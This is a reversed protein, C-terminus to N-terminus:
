KKVAGKKIVKIGRKKANNAKRTESGVQKRTKIPVKTTSMSKRKSDSMEAYGRSANKHAAAGTLSKGYRIPVRKGPVSNYIDEIMLLFQDISRWPQLFQRNQPLARLFREMEFGIRSNAIYLARIFHSERWGYPWIPKIQSFLISGMKRAGELDGIRFEGTIFSRRLAKPGRGALLLISAEHPLDYTKRFDMYTVYHQNGQEVYSRAYDDSVWHKATTNLKQVDSLDMGTGVIYPVPLELERRAEVRHQGDIIQMKENVIIPVLLDHDRMSNVLQLVHSPIIPRNGKLRKFLDYNTTIQVQTVSRAAPKGNANVGSKAITQVSTSM